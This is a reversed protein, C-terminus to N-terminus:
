STATAPHYLGEGDHDDELGGSDDKDPCVFPEDIEQNALANAHLGKHYGEMFGTQITACNSGIFASIKKLM